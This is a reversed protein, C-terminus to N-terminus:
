NYEFRITEKAAKHRSKLLLTNTVPKYVYGSSNYTEFRPDTRYQMDYIYIKTFQPIGRLIIYQSDGEGFEISLISSGDPENEYSIGKTCTWAIINSGDTNKITEFHPIYTNDYALIPFLNALTRLDFSSAEAM